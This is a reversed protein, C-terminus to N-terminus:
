ILKNNMNMNRKQYVPLVGRGSYNAKWVISILTGSLVKSSLKSYDIVQDMLEQGINYNLILAKRAPRHMFIGLLLPPQSLLVYLHCNSVRWLGFYMLSMTVIDLTGEFEPSVAFTSTKNDM